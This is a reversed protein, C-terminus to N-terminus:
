GLLPLSPTRSPFLRLSLLPEVSGTSCFLSSYEHPNKLLKRGTHIVKRLNGHSLNAGSHPSAYLMTGM